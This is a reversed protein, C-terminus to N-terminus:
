HGFEIKRPQDHGPRRLERRVRAPVGLALVGAPVPSAVVAGAGVVSGAGVSAADLVTAHAGIWANEGIELPGRTVMGSQKCFPVDSDPDYEGGSLLYSFSGVMAGRGIRLSNSSFVICSASLSADDGIEVDGGKCYVTTGRGVFVRDGLSIGRNGEGKADLTSRDDLVVGDGLFIKGPHRFTVHRGVVVGRGFAGFFPKYAKGRLFIGAAGPFGSLLCTAIEMLVAKWLPMPGYTVAFYKRAASGGGGRMDKLKM